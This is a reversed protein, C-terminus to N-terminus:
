ISIFHGPLLPALLQTFTAAFFYDTSASAAALFAPLVKSSSRCKLSVGVKVLSNNRVQQMVCTQGIGREGMSCFFFFFLGLVGVFLLIM